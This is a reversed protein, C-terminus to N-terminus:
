IVPRSKITISIGSIFTEDLVGGQVHALSSRETALLFPVEDSRRERPPLDVLLDVISVLNRVRLVAMQAADLRSIALTVAKGALAV